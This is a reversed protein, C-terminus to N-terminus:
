RDGATPLYKTFYGAMLLLIMTILWSIIGLLEFLIAAMNIVAMLYFCVPTLYSKIGINQYGKSKKYVIFISVAISIIFTIVMLILQM